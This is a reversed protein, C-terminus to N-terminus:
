NHPTQIENISSTNRDRSFTSDNHLPGHLPNAFKVFQKKIYNNPSMNLPSLAINMNHNARVM